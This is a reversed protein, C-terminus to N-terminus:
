LHRHQLAYGGDHDPEGNRVGHPKRTGNPWLYTGLVYVAHWCMDMGCGTVRMYGDRPSRASRTADIALNTIDLINGQRVIYLSIDRTMGTASVHRLVSYVTAGPKIMKRLKRQCYEARRKIGEAKSLRVASEDSPAFSFDHVEGNPFQYYAM